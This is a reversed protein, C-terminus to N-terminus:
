YRVLLGVNLIHADLDQSVSSGPIAGAGPLVVPGSIENPFYYSYAANISVNCSLFWSAGASLMHEYFLPAALNFIVDRNGIPNQNFTYGGRIYVADSM